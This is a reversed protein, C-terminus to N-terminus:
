LLKFLESKQTPTGSDFTFLLQTVASQANTFDAAVLDPRPAPTLAFYKTALTSDASFRAQLLRLSELAAVTNAVAAYYQNMIGVPDSM